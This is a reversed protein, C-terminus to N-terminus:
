KKKEKKSQKKLARTVYVLGNKAGPVSGEVALYGKAVDLMVVRLNQTTANVDGMHSPRPSNPLSRGPTTRMGTSGAHRHFGSGHSAPGGSFGYKKMVGQYGKGITRGSVDVFEVGEFASLDIKNGVEYENINSVKTEHLHRHPAVGAKKFHGLIPKTVRKEITRQDQVIEEGFALQVAEYGDKEQTKIQTVVNPDIKLLTCAVPSGEKDFIRVMGCKKGMLRIM